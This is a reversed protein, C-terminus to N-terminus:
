SSATAPDALFEKAFSSDPRAEMPMPRPRHSANTLARALDAERLASWECGDLCSQDRRLSEAGAVVSRQGAALAKLLIGSPGENSHACVVCDVADVLYDLEREDLFRNIVVLRGGRREYEALDSGAETMATETVRGAIVVGTRDAQGMSLARAILPINKRENILGAVGFWMRQSDLDLESLGAPAGDPQVWRPQDHVVKLGVDDRPCIGALHLVHVAPLREARTILLRKVADRLPARPSLWPSRVLLARLELTEPWHRTAGLRLVLRDGNPVLVRHGGIGGIHAALALPKRFEPSSRRLVELGFGPLDQCTLAQLGPDTLAIDSTVLIVKEGLGLLHRALYDVYEMHHGASDPELIINLRTM